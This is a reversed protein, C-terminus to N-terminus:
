LKEECRLRLCQPPKPVKGQMDRDLNVYWPLDCSPHGGENDFQPCCHTGDWCYNSEPVSIPYLVHKM